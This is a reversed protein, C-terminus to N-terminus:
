SLDLRAIPAAPPDKELRALLLGGGAGAPQPHSRCHSSWSVATSAGPWSRSGARGSRRTSPLTSGPPARRPAARRAAGRARLGDCSSALRRWASSPEDTPPAGAGATRFRPAPPRIRERGNAPRPAACRRRNRFAGRAGLAAACRGRRDDRPRVPCGPRVDRIARSAASPVPSSRPMGAPPCASRVPCHIPWPRHRGRARGRVPDPSCGGVADGPPAPSRPVPRRSSSRSRGGSRSWATSSSRSRGSRRIPWGETPGAIGPSFVALADLAAEVAAADAAPDPPVFTAEPALRHAQGLPNGGSASIGPPGTPTSSSATM